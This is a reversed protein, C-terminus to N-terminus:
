RGGIRQGLASAFIALATVGAIGVLSTMIKALSTVPNMDAFSTTTFAGLTYIFYDWLRLDRAPMAVIGGQWWFFLTFFSVAVIAFLLANAPKEGYGWFMGLVFSRLWKFGYKIYFKPRWYLAVLAPSADRPVERDYHYQRAYLPFYTKREMERQKVYAWSAAEDDGIEEFNNKLALYIYRAEQYKGQKEQLISQGLSDQNLQTSSLTAQKLNVESLNAGQLVTHTLNAGQLNVRSMVAEELHAEKLNAGELNVGSLVAKDLDAEELEASQLDACELNAGQLQARQLQAWRLDACKNDSDPGLQTGQLNADQLSTGILITGRLDAGEMIIGDLEMGALNQGALVRGSLNIRSAKNDNRRLLEELQDRTMTRQTQSM